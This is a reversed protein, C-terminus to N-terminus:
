LSLCQNEKIVICGIFSVNSFYILESDIEFHEEIYKNKMTIVM